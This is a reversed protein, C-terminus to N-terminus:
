SACRAQEFAPGLLQAREAGGRDREALRLPKGGVGARHRDAEILSSGPSLLAPQSALLAEDGDGEVLFRDAAGVRVDLVLALDRDVIQELLVGERRDAVVATRVRQM